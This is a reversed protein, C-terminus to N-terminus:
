LFLGCAWVSHFFSAVFRFARGGAQDMSQIDEMLAQSVEGFPYSFFEVKASTNQQILEVSRLIDKKRQESNLNLLHSHTHSHASLDGIESQAIGKLDEWTMSSPYGKEVAETNVFITYPYQYQELIPQVKLFSKYADDITLAIWKGDRPIAGDKLASVLDRLSVVQYGEEKFFEMQQIFTDVNISTSEYPEDFKHYMLVVASGQSLDCNRDKTLLSPPATNLARTASPTRQKDKQNGLTNQCASLM